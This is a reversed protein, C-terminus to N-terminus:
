YNAKPDPSASTASVRNTGRDFHVNFLQPKQTPDLYRWDWVEENKLPFEAVSRPKGLRRRVEDKSMGPRITAFNEPSLAQRWDSLKGHSDIMFMWTRYGEPGRPYELVRSGDDEEWVTDPQGMVTRVDGENSVGRSLKDLGFEQLPRGERDCGLTLLGGLLALAAFVMTKM